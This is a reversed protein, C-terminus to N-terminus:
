PVYTYGVNITCPGPSLTVSTIKLRLWQYKTATPNSLDDNDTDLGGNFTIDSDCVDSCSTGDTGTCVQLNAVMNNSGDGNDCVGTINTLTVSTWSIPRFLLIDDDADPAIIPISFQGTHNGASDAYATTALKTSNDSASQTTATTGDPLAPTGSLNAATGTTNQNPAVVKTGIDAEKLITADAPEFYSAGHGELYSVNLNPVVTESAVVLPPSGTAIDSQFTEARIQFSGVDWNATLPVTGDALLDGGGAPTNCTGDSKLYGSCSGSGWLKVIQTYKTIRPSPPGAFAFTSFFLLFFLSLFSKKM